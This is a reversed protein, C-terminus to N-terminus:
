LKERPSGYKVDIDDPRLFQDESVSGFLAFYDDPWTKEIVKKLKLRVWKSISKKEIKALVEIKKLTPEDIYLSLQPM